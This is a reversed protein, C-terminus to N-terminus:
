LAEDCTRSYCPYPDERKDDDMPDLQNDFFEDQFLENLPFDSGPLNFADQGSQSGGTQQDGGFSPGNPQSRLYFDFYALIEATVKFPGIPPQGPGPVFVAYNPASITKRGSGNGVQIIGSKALANNNRGPGRLVVFIAKSPDASATSLGLLQALKIADAGVVGEFMTGRIGITASPTNINAKTPNAKGIRGSVFRFAGKLVTGSMEGAKKDPDYVFRDIIMECNEGVTFVSQDLLLIQLASQQKTLVEDRLLINQDVQAKRQQSSAGSKVFVNGRVAASVGVKADARVDACWILQAAVLTAVALLGTRKWQAIM